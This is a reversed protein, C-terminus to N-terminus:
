TAMWLHLTKYIYKQIYRTSNTNTQNLPLIKKRPLPKTLVDAINQKSSIHVFMLIGCAISERVRHYEIALHKKKLFNSQDITNLIMSM